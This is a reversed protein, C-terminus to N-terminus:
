DLLTLVVNSDHFDVPAKTSRPKSKVKEYWRRFIPDCAGLDMAFNRLRGACQEISEMRASWYAGVLHARNMKLAERCQPLTFLISVKFAAARSCTRYQQQRTTNPLM